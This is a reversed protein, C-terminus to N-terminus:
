RERESKIAGLVNMGCRTRREASARKSNLDASDHAKTSPVRLEYRAIDRQDSYTVVIGTIVDALNIEHPSANGVRRPHRCRTRVM